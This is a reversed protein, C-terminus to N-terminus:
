DRHNNKNTAMTITITHYNCVTLTSKGGFAHRNFTNVFMELEEKAWVVFATFLNLFFGMLSELVQM